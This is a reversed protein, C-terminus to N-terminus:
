FFLMERAEVFGGSGDLSSEKSSQASKMSPGGDSGLGVCGGLVVVAVGLPIDFLCGCGGAWVSLSM